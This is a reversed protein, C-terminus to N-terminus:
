RAEVRGQRLHAFTAVVGDGVAIEDLLAPDEVSLEVTEQAGRVWIKRNRTDISEIKGYLTLTEILTGAPHRGQEREIFSETTAGVRVGENSKVIDVLVAQTDTITLRNGIKIENLRKVEPPIHLVEFRGEPTQITLMRREVNVVVVTGTLEDSVETTAIPIITTEARDDASLPATGTVGALAFSVLLATKNM